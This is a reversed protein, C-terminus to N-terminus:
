LLNHLDFEPRELKRSEELMKVTQSLHQQYLQSQVVKLQRKRNSELKRILRQERHM